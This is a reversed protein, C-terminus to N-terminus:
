ITLDQEEQMDFGLNFLEAIFMLLIGLFIRSFHITFEVKPEWQTNQLIELAVSRELYTSVDFSLSMIILLIGMLRIWKITKHQFVKGQKANRYLSILTWIAILVVAILMLAAFFQIGMVCTMKSNNITYDTVSSDTNQLYFETSYKTVHAKAIVNSPTGAIVIPELYLQDNSHLDTIGFGTIQEKTPNMSQKEGWLADENHVVDFFFLGLCIIMISIFIAYILRIRQVKNHNSPMM